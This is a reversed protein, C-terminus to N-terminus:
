RDLMALTVAIRYKLRFNHNFYPSMSMRSDKFFYCIKTSKEKRSCVFEFNIQLQIKGFSVSRGVKAEVVKTRLKSSSLNPTNEELVQLICSFVFVVCFIFNYCFWSILMHSNLPKFTYCKASIM